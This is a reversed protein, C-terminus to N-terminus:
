RSSEGYWVWTADEYRTPLQKLDPPTYLLQPFPRGKEVYVETCIGYDHWAQWIASEPCPMGTRLRMKDFHLKHAARRDLLQKDTLYDRSFTITRLNDPDRLSRYDPADNNGNYDFDAYVDFISDPPLPLRYSLFVRNPQPPIVRNGPNFFNGEETRESDIKEGRVLRHLGLRTEYDKFHIHADTQDSVTLIFKQPAYRNDVLRDENFFLDISFGNFFYSVGRKTPSWDFPPKGWTQQIASFTTKGQIWNLGIDAIHLLEARENPTMDKIPPTIPM